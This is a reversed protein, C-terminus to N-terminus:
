DPEPGPEPAAALRRMTTVAQPDPGLDLARDALLFMLERDQRGTVTNLLPEADQSWSKTAVNPVYLHLPGAPLDLTVAGTLAADVAAGALDPGCLDRALTELRARPVGFIQPRDIAMGLHGMLDPHAESVQEIIDWDHDPDGKEGRLFPALRDLGERGVGRAELEALIRGAEASLDPYKSASIVGDRDLFTIQTDGCPVCFAGIERLWYTTLAMLQHPDNLLVRRLGRGEPLPRPTKGKKATM